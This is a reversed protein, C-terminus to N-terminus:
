QLGGAEFYGDSWGEERARDAYGEIALTLESTVGDWLLHDDMVEELRPYMRMIKEIFVSPPANADIREQEKDSM